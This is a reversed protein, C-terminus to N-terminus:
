DRVPALDVPAVARVTNRGAEKAAYLAADAAAVLSVADNADSPCAASGISVTLRKGGPAGLAAAEVATRLREATKLASKGDAGPLVVAFEEGGYRALFDMARLHRALTRTVGRLAEDGAQHGHRDNFRKFHDIDVMLLAMPAGLRHSRSVERQLIDDLFRRNHIGTLGDTAGLHELKATLSQVSKAMNNFQHIATAMEDRGPEDWRGPVRSAMDGQALAEGARVVWRLRRLVLIRLALGVTGASVLLALAPGVTLRLALAQLAADRDKLSIDLALSAVTEGHIQVPALVELAKEDGLRTEATHTAGTYLPQADHPDARRGVRLPESSAATVVQAGRPVYIEARLVAPNLSLVDQIHASFNAMDDLHDASKEQEIELNEALARSLITGQRVYSDNIQDRQLGYEVWVVGGVVLLMILIFPALLKAGLSFAREMETVSDAIRELPVRESQKKAKM